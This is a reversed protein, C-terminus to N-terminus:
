GYNFFFSVIVALLTIAIASGYSVYDAEYSEGKIISKKKKWGKVFSATWVIIVLCIIGILICVPIKIKSLMSIRM